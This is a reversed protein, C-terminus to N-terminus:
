LNHKDLFLMIKKTIGINLDYIKNSKENHKRVIKLFSNISNFLPFNKFIKIKNNVLLQNPKKADYIYCNSNTHIKVLYIKKKFNNGSEVYTDIFNQNKKNLIINSLIINTKKKSFFNVYKIKIKEIKKTLFYIISLPHPLWEYSSNINKIPGEKGFNIYIKKIKEKYELRKKIYQLPDAYIHQYNCFLITKEKKALNALHLYNKKNSSIPKEIFIPKKKKLFFSAALLNKKIDSCIIIFDVKQYPILRFDKFNKNSKIYSSSTYSLKLNFNRFNKILVKGWRSNGGIIAFKM